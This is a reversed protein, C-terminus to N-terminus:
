ICRKPNGLNKDTIETIYEIGTNWIEIIINKKKKRFM